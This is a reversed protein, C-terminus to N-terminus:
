LKAREKLSELAKRYDVMDGAYEAVKVFRVEGGKKIAFGGSNQWRNSGDRTATNVIGQRALSQLESLMARSFLGTFPLTSLGFLAYLHRTPDAVLRVRSDDGFDTRCRGHSLAKGGALGTSVVM